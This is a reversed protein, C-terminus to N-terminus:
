VGAIEGDKELEEITRVVFDYALHLTEAVDSPYILEGNNAEFFAKIEKKGEDKSVVRPEPHQSVISAAMQEQLQEIQLRLGEISARLQDLSEALENRAAHASVNAVGFAIATEAPFIGEYLQGFV